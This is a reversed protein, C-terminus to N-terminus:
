RGGQFESSRTEWEYSQSMEVVDESMKQTFGHDLYWVSHCYHITM